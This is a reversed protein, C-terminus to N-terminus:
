SESSLARLVAARVSLGAGVTDPLGVLGPLDAGFPDVDFVYETDGNDVILDVGLSRIDPFLAATREALEVLRQWREAGFREVFDALERRRGGYWPKAVFRERVVGAAHTVTGDVVGFRIDYFDNILHCRHFGSVAYVGDPELLEVIRGLQRNDTTTTTTEAPSQWVQYGGRTRHLFLRSHWGDIIWDDSASYRPRVIRSLRDEPQPGDLIPLGKERLYADREVRDLMLLVPGAAAVPLAGAKAVALALQQRAAAFEESRAAQGGVPNVPAWGALRECVVYEGSGFEAEDALVSRWPVFRAEPVGAERAAGGWRDRAPDEDAAVM